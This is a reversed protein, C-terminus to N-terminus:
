SCSSDDFRYYVTSLLNHYVAPFSKILMEINLDNDVWVNLEMKKKYEQAMNLIASLIFMDQHCFEQIRLDLKSAMSIAYRLQYFDNLVQREEGGDHTHGHGIM